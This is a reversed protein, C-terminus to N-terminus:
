YFTGTRWEWRSWWSQIHLSWKEEGWDGEEDSEAWESTAHSKKSPGSIFFFPCFGHVSAWYVVLTSYLFCCFRVRREAAAEDDEDEGKTEEQFHIVSVRNLNSDTWSDDVSSQLLNETTFLFSFIIDSQVHMHIILSNDILLTFIFSCCLWFSTHMSVSVQLLSSLFCIAPWCKRERASM